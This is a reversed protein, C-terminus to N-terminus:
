VVFAVIGTATTGTAWVRVIGVQLDAGAAVAITRDTGAVTTVKIDGANGTVRLCIAVGGPLDAGDNPTVPIVDRAFGSLNGGSSTFPNGM